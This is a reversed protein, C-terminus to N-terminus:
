VGMWPPHNIEHPPTFTLNVPLNIIAYNRRLKKLTRRIVVGNKGVLFGAPINSERSTTDHVMDIYYEFDSSTNDGETIIAARAGVREVNITKSLFSCEGRSILAINGEIDDANEIASCADAPITPVLAINKVKFSSNFPAGFDKAPRIRYTYELEEPDIIEFFVDSGVIEQTTIGDMM